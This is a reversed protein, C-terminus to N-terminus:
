HITRIFEGIKDTQQFGFSQAFGYHFQRKSNFTVNKLSLAKAMAEAFSNLIKYALMIETFKGLHGAVERIHLTSTENHQDFIVCFVLGNDDYFGIVVSMKIVISEKIEAIDDSSLYTFFPHRLLDNDAIAKM